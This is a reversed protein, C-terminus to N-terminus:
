IKVHSSNLRTSKRDVTLKTGWVIGVAGSLLYAVGYGLWYPTCLKLEFLEAFAWRGQLYGRVSEIQAAHQPMDVMPPYTSALVPSRFLPTCPGPTSQPP